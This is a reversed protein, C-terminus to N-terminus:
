LRFTIKASDRRSSRRGKGTLAEVSVRLTPVNGNQLSRRIARQTKKSLSLELVRELGPRLNLKRESILVVAPKKRALKAKPGEGLGGPIVIKGKVKAPTKKEAEVEVKVKENPKPQDPTAGTAPDGAGTLEVTVQKEEECNKPEVLLQIDKSDKQYTDEKGGCDIVKDAHTEGNEVTEAADIHDIGDDAIAVQHDGRMTDEGGGGDIRDPGPGGELVDNGPGGKLVESPSPKKGFSGGTGIVDNGAGGDVMELTFAGGEVHDVGSGGVYNVTLDGVFSSLQFVNFQNDGEGLNAYVSALEAACTVDNTMGVKTCGSGPKVEEGGAAVLFVNKEHLDLYVLNGQASGIIRLAGPSKGDKAPVIEASVAAQASPAFVAAALVCALSIGRPAPRRTGERM